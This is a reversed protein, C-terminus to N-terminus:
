GGQMHPSGNGTLYEIAMDAQDAIYRAKSAGDRLDALFGARVGECLKDPDFRHRRYIIKGVLTVTRSVATFPARLPTNGEHNPKRDHGPQVAPRATAREEPTGNKSTRPRRSYVRRSADYPFKFITATM